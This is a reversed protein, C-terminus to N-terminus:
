LSYLPPIGVLKLGNCLVNRACWFLFKLSKSVDNANGGKSLMHDAYASMIGKSLAHLYRMLIYPEHRIICAELVSPYKSIIQVLKFTLDNTAIHSVDINNCSIPVNITAQELIHLKAHTYQLYYGSKDCYDNWNFKRSKLRKHSLDQAALAAIVVKNARNQADDCEHHELSISKIEDIVSQLLHKRDDRPPNVAVHVMDPMYKCFKAVGNDLALIKYVQKFHTTHSVSAVHIIKDIDSTMEAIRKKMSAFSRSFYTSRGRNNKVVIIGLGDSTLDIVRCNNRDTYVLSADITRSKADQQLVTDSTFYEANFKMGLAGSHVLRQESDSLDKVTKWTSLIETDGSEMMEYCKEYEQYDMWVTHENMMKELDSNCSIREFGNKNITQILRTCHTGWDITNKTVLVQANFKRYLNVIFNAMFFQRSDQLRVPMGIVGAVPLEVLIKKGHCGNAADCLNGFADGEFFVRSLIRNTYEVRNLKFALFSEDCRRARRKSLKFSVMEISEIYKLSDNDLRNESFDFAMNEINGSDVHKSLRALSITFDVNDAFRTEIMDYAEKTPIEFHASVIKAIANKFEVYTDM